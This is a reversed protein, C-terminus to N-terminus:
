VLVGAVWVGSLLLTDQIDYILPARAVPAPSAGFAGGAGKHTDGFTASHLPV